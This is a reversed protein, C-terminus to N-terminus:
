MRLWRWPMLSLPVNVKVNDPNLNVVAILSEGGLAAYELIGIEAASQM